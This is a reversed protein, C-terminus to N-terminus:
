DEEGDEGELAQHHSQPPTGIENLDVVKMIIQESIDAGIFMPSMVDCTLRYKGPAPPAPLKVECAAEAKTLPMLWPQAALLGGNVRLLVWWPEGHEVPSGRMDKGKYPLGGSGNMRKVTCTVTVTDGVAIEPEDYTEAKVSISIRPAALGLAALERAQAEQAGPGDASAQGRRLRAKAGVALAALAFSKAQGAVQMLLDLCLMARDVVLDQDAQIKAREEDSGKPWLSHSRPLHLRALLLALAHRGEPGLNHVQPCPAAGEAFAACGVATLDACLQATMDEGAATEGVEGKRFCIPAGAIAAWLADEDNNDLGPRLLTEVLHQLDDQGCAAPAEKSNKRSMYIIAWLVVLVLGILYTWIIAQESGGMLFDPLAMGIRQLQPGDPHGYDRYNRRGVPDTLATNAQALRRFARSATKNRVGWKDPHHQLSLRRYARRIETRNSSTSVGLIEFPDFYADLEADAIQDAMYKMAWCSLGFVVLKTLFKRSTFKEKSQQSTRAGVTGRWLDKMLLYGTMPLVVGGLMAAIFVMEM